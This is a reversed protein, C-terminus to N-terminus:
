RVGAYGLWYVLYVLAAWAGLAIRVLPSDIAARAGPARHASPAADISSPFSVNRELSM